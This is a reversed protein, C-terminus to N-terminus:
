KEGGNHVHGIHWKGCEKCQYATYGLTLLDQRGRIEEWALDETEYAIKAKWANSHQKRTWHEASPSFRKQPRKDHYRLTKSM